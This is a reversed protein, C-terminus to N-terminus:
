FLKKFGNNFKFNRCYTECFKDRLVQLKKDNWWNILNKSNKNVFKSAELPSKFFIKNKYFKNVFYSFNKDLHLQFKPNFIVISPKNFFMSEFFPTGLYFHVVLNSATIMKYYDRKQDFVNNKSYIKNLTKFVLKNKTTDQIKLNTNEKINLKLNNYFKINNKIMEKNAKYRDPFGYLPRCADHQEDLGHMILLIKGNTINKFKPKFFFFKKTFYFKEFNSKQNNGWVFFKDSIKNWGIVNDLVDKFIGSEGHQFLFLKTDKIINKSCYIKFIEDYFHGYSTFIYRPNKPWNLNSYFNELSNYNELFIKPFSIEINKKIFSELNNNKTKFLKVFNSRLNISKLPLPVLKQKTCFNTCFNRLYIFFKLKNDFSTEYLFIKKLLFFNLFSKINYTKFIKKEKQKKFQVNKLNLSVERFNKLKYKFIRRFMIHAWLGNKGKHLINHHWTNEPIFEKDNIKLCYFNDIKFKKIIRESIKWKSYVDLINAMLWKHILIEWYRQSYNTKHIINLNKVFECLLNEYILNIKKIDNTKNKIRKWKKFNLSLFNNLNEDIFQDNRCWNGILHNKKDLKLKSLYKDKLNELNFSILNIKRSKFKLKTYKTKQNKIFRDKSKLKM